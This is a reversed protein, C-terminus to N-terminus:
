KCPKVLLVFKEDEKEKLVKICFRKTAKHGGFIYENFIGVTLEQGMSSTYIGGLNYKEDIAEEISYYSLDNVFLKDFNNKKDIIENGNNSLIRNHIIDDSNNIEIVHKIDCIDKLYSYDINDHNSIWFVKESNRDNIIDQINKDEIGKLSGIPYVLICNFNKHTNEQSKSQMSDVQISLNSIKKIAGTKAKFKLIYECDQMSSIRILIKLHKELSNLYRLVDFLKKQVNTGVVLCHKESSKLFENLSIIVEEKNRM